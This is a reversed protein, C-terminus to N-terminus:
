RLGEEALATQLDARVREGTELDRATTVVRNEQVSSGDRLLLRVNGNEDPRTAKARLGAQSGTGGADIPGPVVKKVHPHGAVTQIARQGDRGGILTSHTGGIKEGLPRDVTELPGKGGGLAAEVPNEADVRLLDHHLDARVARLVERDGAAYVQEPRRRHVGDAIRGAFARLEGRPNSGTTDDATGNEPVTTVTTPALPDDDLVPTLTARDRELDLVVSDANETRCVLCFDGPQELAAGCSRCHVTSRSLTPGNLTATAARASGPVPM